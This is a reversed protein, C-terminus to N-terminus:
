LESVIVDPIWIADSSLSIESIGDFEDPDWVLFEDTWIQFCLLFETTLYIWIISYKKFGQIRHAVKVFSQCSYQMAKKFSYGLICCATSVSSACIIPAIKILLIHIKYLLYITTKEVSKFYPLVPTFHSAVYRDTGCVQLLVRHKEM